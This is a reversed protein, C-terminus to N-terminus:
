RDGGGKVPPWQFGMINDIGQQILNGAGDMGATDCLADVREKMQTVSESIKKIELQCDSIHEVQGKMEGERLIDLNRELELVRASLTRLAEKEKKWFM